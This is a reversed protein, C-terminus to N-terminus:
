AVEGKAVRSLGNYDKVIKINVFGAKQFFEKVRNEQGESIEFFLAGNLALLKQAVEIIRRFFSYGDANDTVAIKPEYNKIEEQLGEVKEAPVYPPNSVILDFKGLKFIESSFVDARFFDIEEVGNLEANNKAVKLAEDSVDIGTVDVENLNKKLVISINGSGTGVDLIKLGRKKGEVFNIIEDILIETEQRPILVDKSVNFKLGYFEVYGLIYQLPEFKSRRQLYNRYKNIEVNSLPKDFMLYLDLRKCQLIDALLLEANARPEDIGKNRLYEESLKVAELVTLLKKV